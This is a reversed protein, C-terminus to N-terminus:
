EKQLKELRRQLKRRRKEANHERRAQQEEQIKKERLNETKERQIAEILVKKNKFQNGKSLNYFRHYLTRDIKNQKRYKRLLRRLIRQRRIWLVKEPM